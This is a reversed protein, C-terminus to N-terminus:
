DVIYDKGAAGHCGRMMQTLAFPIAKAHAVGAVVNMGDMKVPVTKFKCLQRSLGGGAHDLIDYHDAAVLLNIYVEGGVIGPQGQEVAMLLQVHVKAKHGQEIVDLCVIWLYMLRTAISLCRPEM